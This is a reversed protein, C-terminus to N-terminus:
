KHARFTVGPRLVEAIALGVCGTTRVLSKVGYSKSNAPDLLYACYNRVAEAVKPGGGSNHHYWALLSVVSPSRQQDASRLQGWTGDPNQTSVLWDVCPKCRRVLSKRLVANETAAHLGLFAESCYTMTDLPWNTRLKGDLTYGSGAGCDGLFVRAPHFNFVLFGTLAGLLALM